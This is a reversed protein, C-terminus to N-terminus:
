AEEVHKGTNGQRKSREILEIIRASSSLDDLKLNEAFIQVEMEKELALILEVLVISEIGRVDMVEGNALPELESFRALVRMVKEHLEESQTTLDDPVPDRNPEPLIERIPFLPLTSRLRYDRERFLRVLEAAAVEPLEVVAVISANRKSKICVAQPDVQLLNALAHRLLTEQYSDFEDYDKDIVIRVRRTPGSPTITSGQRLIWPREKYKRLTGEGWKENDARSHCNACLCILNEVTHDLCVRWPIIHARELPCPAGCVACRHGAEVLVSNSIELPIHPRTAMFEERM